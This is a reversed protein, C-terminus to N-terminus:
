VFKKLKFSFISGIEKINNSASLSGHHLKIVAQCIALGLGSGHAKMGESRYFRDFIKNEDGIKIGPGQDYVQMEITEDQNVLLKIKVETQPPSYKLANEILNYIVIGILESDAWVFVDGSHDFLQYDDLNLNLTINKKNALKTLRSVQTLLVEDLAVKSFNSFQNENNDVQALILLDNTLRVLHDIEFSMSELFNKLDKENYSHTKFIELEGKIIALPTKLQHSADQVFREQAEFSLNLRQLLHNITTALHHIEDRSHPIPVREKLNKVEIQNTKRTIEIIPRLARGMFAFGIFFSIFSIIAVSSYLFRKLNRKTLDVSITPVTIQLILPSDRKLVPLLYNLVRYRSGDGQLVDFYSVGKKLVKMLTLENIPIVRSIETNQSHAVIKGSLDIISIFSKGLAFPFIKENIKIISPDFEVEGYSDIDLSEAVDVAYNYLNADFEQGRIFSYERYLSVSFIILLTSFLFVFLLTLRWKLSLKDFIIM